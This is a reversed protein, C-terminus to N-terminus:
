RVGRAHRDLMDIIKDMSFRLADIRSTLSSKIEEMQRQRMDQYIVFESKTVAISKPLHLDDNTLHKFLKDDIGNIQGGLEARVSEVRKGVDEVNKNISSLFFLAITVLVPTAFRMWHGVQERKEEVM